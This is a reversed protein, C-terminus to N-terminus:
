NFKMSISLKSVIIGVQVHKAMEQTVLTARARLHDMHTQAHQKM